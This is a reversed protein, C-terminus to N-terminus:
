KIGRESGKTTPDGRRRRQRWRRLRIEKGGTVKGAPFRLNRPARPRDVHRLFGRRFVARWAGSMEPLKDDVRRCTHACPESEPSSVEYGSEDPVTKSSWGEQPRGRARM